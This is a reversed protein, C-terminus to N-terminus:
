SEITLDHDEADELSITIGEPHEYATGKGSYVDFMYKSTPWRTCRSGDANFVDINGDENIRGFIDIAESADFAFTQGDDTTIWLESESFDTDKSEDGEDWDKQEIALETGLVLWCGPAFKVSGEKRAEEIHAITIGYTNM